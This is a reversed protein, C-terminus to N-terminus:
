LPERVLTRPKIRTNAERTFLHPRICRYQTEKALRALFTSVASHYQLVRQILADVRIVHMQNIVYKFGRVIRRSELTM